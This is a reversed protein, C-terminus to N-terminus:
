ALQVASVIKLPLIDCFVILIHSFQPQRRKKAELGSYAPRGCSREPM